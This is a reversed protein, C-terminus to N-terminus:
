LFIWVTVPYVRKRYLYLHTRIDLGENAVFITCLIYRLNPPFSFFLFLSLFFPLLFFSFVIKHYLFRLLYNGM